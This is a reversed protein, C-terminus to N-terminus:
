PAPRPVSPNRQRHLRGRALDTETAPGPGDVLLHAPAAAWPRSPLSPLAITTISDAAYPRRADRQPALRPPQRGIMALFAELGDLLRATRKSRTNHDGAVERAIPNTPPPPCGRRSPVSGVDARSHMVLVPVHIEASRSHITASRSLRRVPLWPFLEAGIDPISTFTSQLILGVLPERIALEAAIGGGLSEGHAVIHTGAFGRQRLWAHAAQADLYTGAESPRGGSRGYGRYDFGLVNVGMELLAEFLELRHSINGGNGHCHLVALHRRPSTTDAPFFWAHLREGDAARLWVEEFPRGLADADAWLTASPQYVNRHEFWRLFV